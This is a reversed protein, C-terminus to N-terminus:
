TLFTLLYLLSKTKKDKINEDATEKGIHFVKSLHDSTSGKRKGIITDVHTSYLNMGADLKDEEEQISPVTM